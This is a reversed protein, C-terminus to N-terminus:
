QINKLNAATKEWIEKLLNLIHKADEIESDKHYVKMESFTGSDSVIGLWWPSLLSKKYKFVYCRIGDEDVFSTTHEIKIPKKGLERADALWEELKNKAREVNKREIIKLWEKKFTIVVHKEDFRPFSAVPIVACFDDYPMEEAIQLNDYVLVVNWSTIEDKLNQNYGFPLYKELPFISPVNETLAYKAIATQKAPINYILPKAFYCDQKQKEDLYAEFYAYADASTLGKIKRLFTDELVIPYICGFLTLGSKLNTKVLDENFALAENKLSPIADLHYEDGEQIFTGLKFNRCFDGIFKYFMEIDTKTAPYNLVLEVDYNRDITFSMGRGYKKRDFLVFLQERIDEEGEYTDLVFAHNPVGFYQNEFDTWGSLFKLGIKKPTQTNQNINVVISM